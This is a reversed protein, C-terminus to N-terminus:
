FVAEVAFLFLNAKGDFVKSPEIIFVSNKDPDVEMHKAEAKVAFNSSIDWRVGLTVADVDDVDRSLITENYAGALMDLQDSIGVPIEGTAVPALRDDRKSYTLHLTVADLYVGATVYFGSFDSYLPSSPNFDVYEARTFYNLADYQISFQYYDVSTRTSIANASNAFGAASLAGSLADVDSLVLDLDGTHFTSRLRFQYLNLELILGYLDTLDSEIKCGNIRIDDDNGGYYVEVDGSVDDFSFDYRVNLGEYTSFIFDIYVEEPPHIFFVFAQRPEPRIL